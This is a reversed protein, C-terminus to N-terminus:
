HSTEPPPCNVVREVGDGRQGWSGPNPRLSRVLYFLPRGPRLTTIDSVVINGTAPFQHCASAFTPDTSRVVLYRTAFLQEPWSYEAPDTPNWFGTPGSVEDVAGFGYDGPCQNEQSENIEWAGPHITPDLDDCDAGGCAPDHFCDGDLNACALFDDTQITAVAQGDAITAGVPNVLLVHFTEDCEDEADAAVQVEVHRMVEGPYFEVQLPYAAFDVGATATGEVPFADVTIWAPSPVSLSVPFRFYSDEGTGEAMVVDGISVFPVQDDNLITGIAEPIAIAANVPHSLVVRFAEDLELVQDSEVQITILKRAEGPKFTVTGSQYIYDTPSTAGGDVTRYDVRVPLEYLGTLSLDFMFDTVGSNGESQFRDQIFVQVDDNMLTGKGEGDAITGSDPNSLHVLFTDPGEFDTDGIAQVVVPKATEGPLFVVTGAASLYDTGAVAFGDSTHFSVSITYGRPADLSVTFLFASTGINGEPQSVDDISLTQAFSPRAAPLLALWALLLIRATRKM